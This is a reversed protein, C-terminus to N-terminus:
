AAPDGPEQGTGRRTVDGPISVRPAQIHLLGVARQERGGMGGMQLPEPSM